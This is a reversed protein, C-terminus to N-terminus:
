LSEELRLRITVAADGFHSLERSKTWSKITGHRIQASEYDGKSIPVLRAFERKISPYRVAPVGRAYLYLATPPSAIKRVGSPNPVEMPVSLV